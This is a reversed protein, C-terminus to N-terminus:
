AFLYVLLLIVALLAYVAGALLMGLFPKRSGSKRIRYDAFSEKRHDDPMNSLGPWRLNILHSIGYGFIDFMGEGSVFRLGAMCLILMGAVFAGDCLAFVVGRGRSIQLACVGAMIAAGMVLPIFFAKSKLTKIM